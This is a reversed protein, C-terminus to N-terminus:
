ATRRDGNVPEFTHPAVMRVRGADADDALCDLHVLDREVRMDGMVVRLSYGGPQRYLTAGTGFPVHKGCRGCPSEWAHTM